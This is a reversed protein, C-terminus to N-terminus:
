WFNSHWRRNAYGFSTQEAIFFIHTFFPPDYKQITIADNAFIVFEERGDLLKMKSRPDTGRDLSQVVGSKENRKRCVLWKYGSPSDGDGVELFHMLVHFRLDRLRAPSKIQDHIARM